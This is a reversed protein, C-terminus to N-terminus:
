SDSQAFLQELYTVDMKMHISEYYYEGIGFASAWSSKVEGIVLPAAAPVGETMVFEVVYAAAPPPSKKRTCVINEFCLMVTDVETGHLVIQKGDAQRTITVSEILPLLTYEDLVDPLADDLEHTRLSTCGFLLLCACVLVSLIIGIKKM